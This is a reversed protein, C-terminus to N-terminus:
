TSSGKAVNGKLEDNEYSEQVRLGKRRAAARGRAALESKRQVIAKLVPSKRLKVRAHFLRAKVAALSIGLAGATEKLSRERLQGMQVATRLRPELNAIAANLLNKREEEACIQEPNPSSSFLQFSLSDKEIGDLDQDRPQCENRKKRLIMLASNIVIRTLWTSFSSRGQFSKLNTYARLWCDQVADKADERNRLVAIACRYLKAACMKYLQDWAAADNATARQVLDLDICVSYRADRGAVRQAISQKTNSKDTRNKRARKRLHPRSLASSHLSSLSGQQIIM